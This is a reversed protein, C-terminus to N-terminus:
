SNIRHTRLFANGVTEVDSIEVFHPPCQHHHQQRTFSTQVPQEHGSALWQQQITPLIPPGTDGLAEDPPQVCLTNGVTYLVMYLVGYTIGHIVCQM